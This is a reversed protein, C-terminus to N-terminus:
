SVSFSQSKSVIRINPFCLRCRAKSCVAAETPEPPRVLAGTPILASLMGAAVTRALLM